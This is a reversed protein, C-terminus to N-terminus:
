KEGKELRKKYRLEPRVARWQRGLADMHWGDHYDELQCRHRGCHREKGSGYFKTAFCQTDMDKALKIM